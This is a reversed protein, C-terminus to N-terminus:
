FGANVTNYFLRSLLTGKEEGLYAFAISSFYFNIKEMLSNKNLLKTSDSPLGLCSSFSFTYSLKPHHAATSLLISNFNLYCFANKM